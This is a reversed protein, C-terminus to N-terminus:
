RQRHPTGGRLYLPPQSRVKGTVHKCGVRENHAASAVRWSQGTDPIGTDGHFVNGVVESCSPSHRRNRTVQTEESAILDFGCNLVIEVVTCLNLCVQLM